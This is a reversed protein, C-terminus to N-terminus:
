GSGAGVAASIAQLEDESLALEAARASDAITEPRSAGPIPVVRPSLALLWALAVQQPSVDHAEAAAVVPTVDATGGARGIGGLPSWPLFALGHEEAYRVEGKALPSTFDLALQNQVSVVDVIARAADLQETNANSVGVWRM